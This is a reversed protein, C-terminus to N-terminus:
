DQRPPREGHYQYYNTEIRGNYLKRVRDPRGRKFYNPFQKDATLVYVSWGKKKRFMKNLMIYIQNISKFDAMRMGYPPNTVLVGYEKDIWVENIPKTEFTIDDGVGALEANKQAIAVAGADIDSGFLSLEFDSRVAERAEDRAAEWITKPVAPWLESAFRRELGPAINRAMMAAEILITGSGCMPDILLRDPRWFSLKVLAAAMTEKLPAEGALARYGRKHLGAGSTDITLTAIDKYLAVQITFQAGTEDFWEVGYAQKLREVVAKKVIAQCSRVSALVSKVSKGIVPFEGDEPIWNEWPLAKTQEFLDDFETVEFQGVQLLLRDAFRLWLNLKPIDSLQAPFSIQGNNVTLEDFGLMQLERKVLAELGFTATAILTIM